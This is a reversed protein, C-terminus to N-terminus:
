RDAALIRYKPHDPNREGPRVLWWVCAIISGATVLAPIVLIVINLLVLWAASDPGPVAISHGCITQDITFIIHALHGTM